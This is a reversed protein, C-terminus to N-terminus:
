DDCRCSSCICWSEDFDAPYLCELFVDFLGIESKSGPSSPFLKNRLNVGENTELVCTVEKFSASVPHEKPAAVCSKQAVAELVNLNSRKLLNM